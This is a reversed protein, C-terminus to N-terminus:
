VYFLLGELDEGTVYASKKIKENLILIQLIIKSLLFDFKGFIFLYYHRKIFIPVM